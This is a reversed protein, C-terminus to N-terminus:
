NLQEFGLLIWVFLNEVPFCDFSGGFGLIGPDGQRVSQTQTGRLAGDGFNELVLQNRAQFVERILHECLLFLVLYFVSRCHRALCAKESSLALKLAVFSLQALIL